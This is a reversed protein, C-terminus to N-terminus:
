DLDKLGGLNASIYQDILKQVDIKQEDTLQDWARLLNTKEDILRQVPNEGPKLKEIRFQNNKMAAGQNLFKIFITYPLNVGVIKQWIAIM